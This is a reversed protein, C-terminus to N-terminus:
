RYLLISPGPSHSFSLSLSLALSISLELETLVFYTHVHIYYLRVEGIEVCATDLYSPLRVLVLKVSADDERREQHCTRIMSM